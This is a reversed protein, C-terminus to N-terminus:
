PASEPVCRFIVKDSSLARLTVAYPGPGTLPTVSSALAAQANFSSTPVSTENPYRGPPLFLLFDFM